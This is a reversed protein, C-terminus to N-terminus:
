NKKFVIASEGTQRYYNKRVGFEKVGLKEYLNIAKENSVSTEVYASAAKQIIAKKICTKVM